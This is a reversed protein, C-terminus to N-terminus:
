GKKDSSGIFYPVALKTEMARLIQDIKINRYTITKQQKEKKNREYKSIKLSKNEIRENKKTEKEPRM